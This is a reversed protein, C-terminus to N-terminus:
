SGRLFGRGAWGQAQSRLRQEHALFPLGGVSLCEAPGPLVSAQHEGGAAAQGISGRFRTRDKRRIQSWLLIRTILTWWRLCM